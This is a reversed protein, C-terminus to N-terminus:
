LQKQMFHTIHGAPREPLTGFTHYGHAHFFDINHFDAADTVVNPCGRRKSEAEALLLMQTGYGQGRYSDDIWLHQLDFWGWYTMGLLGGILTGNLTRLFIVLREGKGMVGRSANYAGLGRALTRVDKMPPNDQVTFPRSPTRPHIDRWVYYYNYGPPRDTLTGFLRFGLHVYFPLSQFSTTALFVREVGAQHAHAELSDMLARGYGAGKYTHDVWLLDIYMWGWGIEGYVGGRILGAEDRLFAAVPRMADGGYPRAFDDLRSQIVTMEAQQPDAEIILPRTPHLSRTM